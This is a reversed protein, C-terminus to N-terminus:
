LILDRAAANEWKALNDMEKLCLAHVIAGRANKIRSDAAQGYYASHLFKQGVFVDNIEAICCADGIAGLRRFGDAAERVFVHAVQAGLVDLGDNDCAISGSSM